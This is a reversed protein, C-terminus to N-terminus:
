LNSIYVPIYQLNNNEIFQIAKNHDPAFATIYGGGGSGCLKMILNKSRLGSEWVKGMKEPIITQMNELQYDSLDQLKLWFESISGNLLHKICQDTLSVFEKAKTNIQGDPAFHNLFNSVLPTTKGSLGTDILFISVNEKEWNQPISVISPKKQENILLPQSVFITLPDIGSSTGHFFSEMESFIKCLKEMELTNQKKGSTKQFAYRSFVAAVVAGSSGLGYSQPITSELYLGNQIDKQFGSLDLLNTYNGSETLWDLLNQLHKRSEKALKLNTYKDKHIFSFEAKFHSYPISLASSGLLISYEGFLLLKANYSPNRRIM